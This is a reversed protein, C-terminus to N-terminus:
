KESEHVPSPFPLGSWYEQRSFGMSVPTQHAATWPTALPRVHSLTKVKSESGVDLAADTVFCTSLSHTDVQRSSKHIFSMQEAWILCREKILENM